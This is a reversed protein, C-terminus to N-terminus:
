DLSELVWEGNRRGLTLHHSGAETEIRFVARDDDTGPPDIVQVLEVGTPEDGPREQAFASRAAAEVRAPEWGNDAAHAAALDRNAVDVGRRFRGETADRRRRGAVAGGLALLLLLVVVVIIVVELTNV